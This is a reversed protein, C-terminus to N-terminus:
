ANVFGFSCFQCCFGGLVCLWAKLGGNPPVFVEAKLESAVQTGVRDSASFTDSNPKSEALPDTAAPVTPLM